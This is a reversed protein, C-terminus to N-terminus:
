QVADILNVQGDIVNKWTPSLADEFDALFVDAGSNLANIMMKREVPGTIEVHRKQLDQPAKVCSWHPDERIARTEEPFVPRWGEDLKKQIEKRRELLKLRRPQFQQHLAELFTCAEPTLISNQM